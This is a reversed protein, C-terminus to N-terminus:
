PCFHHQYHHKQILMPHLASSPATTGTLVGPIGNNVNVVVSNKATTDYTGNAGLNLSTQPMLAGNQVVKGEDNADFGGPV